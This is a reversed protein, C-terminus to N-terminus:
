RVDVTQSKCFSTIGPVVNLLEVWEVHFTRGTYTHADHQRHHAQQTDVPSVTEVFDKATLAVTAALEVEDESLLELGRKVNGCGLFDFNCIM